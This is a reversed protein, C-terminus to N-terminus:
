VACFLGCGLFDAGSRIAVSFAMLRKFYGAGAQGAVVVVAHLCSRCFLDVCLCRGSASARVSDFRISDVGGM